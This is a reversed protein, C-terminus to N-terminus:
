RRRTIFPDIGRDKFRKALEEAAREAESLQTFSGVRVRKIARGGKLTADQLTVPGFHEGLERTLREVNIPDALAAVQVVYPNKANAAPDLALPRGDPTVSRLRVSATGKGLFGLERAGKRSLDLVRGRSFPGRDNVRFIGRRGNEVNEVEVHSGLPLTRHACTMAEPDMPEGSATARGAFGDGEGGYWSAQGSESFVEGAGTGLGIGEQTRRPQDLEPRTCHLSFFLTLLPAAFRTVRRVQRLLGGTIQRVEQVPQFQVEIGQIWVSFARSWNQASHLNLDM